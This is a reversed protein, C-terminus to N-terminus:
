KESDILLRMARELNRAPSGPLKKFADIIGDDVRGCFVSRKGRLEIAPSGSEVGKAIAVGKSANREPAKEPIAAEARAGGGGLVTPSEAVRKDPAPVPAKEYRIAM